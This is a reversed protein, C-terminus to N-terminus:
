NSIAMVAPSSLGVAFPSGPVPTPGGTDAAIAYAYIGAAAAASGPGVYAFQGSPDIQVATGDGLQLAVPSAVLSLAGSLADISYTYLGNLGTVYAFRGHPEIAMSTAASPFLFPSGAVATLAGSSAKITFAYLNGRDLAYVFRGFPDTMVPGAVTITSSVVAVVALAGATPDITYAFLGTGAPPVGGIGHAYAFQGSPEVTVPGGCAEPVSSGLGSPAGTTPDITFTWTGRNFSGMSDTNAAYGFNGSPHFTVAWTNGFGGLGNQCGAPTTLTGDLALFPSGAVPTLLGTNSDVTYDYISAPDNVFFIPNLFLNLAWAFSTHPVRQFSTIGPGTTVMSGPVLTLAGSTRDIAYVSIAGPVTPQNASISGQTVVYALRGVPQPCFVNVSTVNASAVTGSGNSLTCTQAPSTPQGVITVSYATGTTVGTASTFAGNRSIAIAAGGNYSLTLGSGTLGAVYGGISYM